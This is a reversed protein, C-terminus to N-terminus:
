ERETIQKSEPEFRVALVVSFPFEFGMLFTLARSMPFIGARFLSRPGVSLLLKCILFSSFQASCALRLDGTGAVQRPRVPCGRLAKYAERADGGVGSPPM